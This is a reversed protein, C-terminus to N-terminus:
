LAGEDCALLTRYFDSTRELEAPTDDLAIRGNELFVVRDFRHIGRLHHTVMILTKGELATLLTDLVAAETAPDLGVTPEDLIVVPADQILIRALAIRHREGGSFRSGGEGVITDLGAKLRAFVDSLGVEDLVQVLREDSASPNGVRLNERLTENFLYTDQQVVGFVRTAAQGLAACDGGGVRVTGTTPALDGRVLSAITSKGSGSKGLVAVKQGPEIALTVGDLVRANSDPYSFAVNHLEVRLPGAPMSDTAHDTAVNRDPDPLCNLRALSDAHGRAEVVAAPLSTFADALPFYGLTFALVWNSDGGVGGGFSAAAWCLVLVAGLAFVIQQALDRRRDFAHARRAVEDVEDQTRAHNERCDQARGSLLWDTVGLIDDAVEAYLRAQLDKAQERRRGNVWASVGPVVFLEILALTLAVLAAQWSFAGFVAVLALGVAVAIVAPFVTRLYLNQIHGIDESLLGLADGIRWTARFFVGQQDFSRYLRKRLSSTMRLVWDHSALREFYQLVPKGVGFVRVCLLPTGLLFISFPMEASGGILWGATFMLGVAFAVTAVGLALALALTARYRGLCPKVWADRRWLSRISERTTM